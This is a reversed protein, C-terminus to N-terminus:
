AFAVGSACLRGVIRSPIRFIRWAGGIGLPIGMIEGSLMMGAGQIWVLERKKVM